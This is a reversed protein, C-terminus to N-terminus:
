PMLTTSAIVQVCDKMNPTLVNIALPAQYVAFLAICLIHFLWSKKKYMNNTMTFDFRRPSFLWVYMGKKEEEEM